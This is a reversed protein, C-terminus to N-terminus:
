AQPEAHAIMGGLLPRLVMGVLDIAAHLIVAIWLNGTGLYVLALVAGIAATAIVGVWGQYLHAAGFAITALAFAAWVNGIVLVFLLPLTLRFLLEETVGANISLLAAHALEARNRPLLPEIDGLTRPQRIAKRRGVVIGAVIAVGGGIAMGALLGGTQGSLAAGGLAASVPAFEAPMAVLAGLRGLLALSLVSYGAFLVFATVIWIRFQRQRARTDTLAKFRRYAALDHRLFLAIGGLAVALLVLPLAM